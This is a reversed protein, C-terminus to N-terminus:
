RGLGTGAIVLTSKQPHLYKAAAAKVQPLSVARYYKAYNQVYDVGLGNFEASALARALRMNDEVTIAFAGIIFGKARELQQQTPGERKFREVTGRAANLAESVKLPSSGFTTYWPGAGLTADFTSYIGYVLGRKERVEEGLLSTLAGSGGLVENMLRVAYFDPDGRKVGMAYGFVTTSESKGPMPVTIARSEKQLPVDPIDVKPRPGDAKWDGFHKKVLGVADEPKIDGVIVLITTDPRYYAKHFAILDDRTVAKLQKEAEELSPQHYPHGEPFVAGHFARFARAETSEKSVDLASLSEGVAKEFQDQPFAANRVQDAAIGLVAAFDRTLAKGRFEAFEVGASTGLSAGVSEVETALQLASRTQTGRGLMEAVLGSTGAKGKPDFSSGALIRGAFAVTPNSHNEQVILVLGNDLIIRYPKAQPKAAAPASPVPKAASIQKQAPKAAPKAALKGSTYNCAGPWKIHDLDAVQVPGPKPSTTGGGGPVPRKPPTFTGVTLNDDIFYRAAVSQVHEPTVAKIQPILTELFTWSNITNYYGLQEGQDSVSDNQFVIYAELQNKASQMEEMTPKHSAVIKVQEMLASELAAAEVGQQGTAGLMFLSPDKRMTASSWASSALQKEVLAQYLRSSRGGSLIQDLVMLPYADPSSIAPIHYALVVRDAIGERRVTVRRQGRQTPESTYVPRPLEKAPKAGFYKKVLALAKKSDFDGVLVLTANNPHYYSQYYSWLQARSINEVDSRWGITPWQYPHAMFATAHLDRYLLWDPDNERGDMESLVVTREKSFEEAPLLASGAREALTKISLELNEPALLQWYYTFDTWTAANEIGGRESILKSIEGKKFNKSSNFLMHELMHSIGTVGTRENRSGVKFWVQATFVPAAHVEKMLVTLGNDLQTETVGTTQASVASAMGMVLLILALIAAHRKRM